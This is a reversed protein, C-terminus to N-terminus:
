KPPPSPTPPDFSALLSASQSVRGQSVLVPLLPETKPLTVPISHLVSELNIDDGASFGCDCADGHKHVCHHVGKADVYCLATCCTAKDCGDTVAHAEPDVFLFALPVPLACTQVAIALALLAPLFPAPSPHWRGRLRAPRPRPRRLFSCACVIVARAPVSARWIGCRTKIATRGM